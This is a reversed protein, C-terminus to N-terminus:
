LQKLRPSCQQRSMVHTKNNLANPSSSVDQIYVAGTWSGSFNNPVPADDYLNFEITYTDDENHTVTVTGDMAPAFQTVNGYEDYGGLYWTSYLNTGEKSGIVYTGPEGNDSATFTGTPLGSEFGNGEDGVYELQFGDNGAVPTLRVIWNDGGNGYYDGYYNAIASAGDLNVTYDDSLTTMPDDSSSWGYLPLTVSSKSSRIHYGESTILDVDINYTGNDEELTVTGDTIIGYAVHTESFYHEAYTGEPLLIGGHDTMAGPYFTGFSMDTGHTLIGAVLEGEDTVEMYATINLLTGPPAVQGGADASMDTFQLLVSGDQAQYIAQAINMDFDIDEEIYEYNPGAQYPECIIPGNYTLHHKMGDELTLTMDVYYNDGDKTVTGYGSQFQMNVVINGEEDAKAYQGYEQSFTGISGSNTPDLEYYGEPLGISSMDGNWAEGYFDITYYTGNPHVYNGHNGSTEDDSFTIFYNGPSSYMDGYYIGRPQFTAMFEVDYVENTKSSQTIITKGSLEGYELTITAQRAFDSMNPSVTFNITGPQSFDFEGIWEEAGRANAQPFTNEPANTLTYNIQYIGGKADADITTTIVEFEPVTTEAAPKNCSCISAVTILTTTIIFFKPHKM